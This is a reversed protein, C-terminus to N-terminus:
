GLHWLKMFQQPMDKAVAMDGWGSVSGANSKTFLQSPNPATTDIKTSMGEFDRAFADMARWAGYPIGYATEASEEGKAVNQVNGPEGAGFGMVKASEGAAKIAAPVGLAMDGFAFAVYKVNPNRQLEGTVDAPIKTGVDTAQVDVETVKMKPCLKKLTPIMIHTTHNLIPYTKINFVDTDGSCGNDAAIYNAIAKPAFSNRTGDAINAIIPPQAANLDYGDVVPIHAAQAQALASNITARDLGTVYIGDPHQRVAQQIAAIEAEPTPQFPISNLKWGLAKAAPQLGQEYGACVPQSCRLFDITKGTPPKHKLPTKIEISTPRKEAAAVAKAAASGGSSSGSAGGSSGSGSNSNGSSGCAAIAAAAMAACVCMGARQWLKSSM